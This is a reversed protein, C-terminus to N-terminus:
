LKEPRDEQHGASTRVVGRRRDHVVDVVLCELLELEAEGRRHRQDEHEDEDGYRKHLVAGQARVELVSTRGDRTTARPPRLMQAIRVSRGSYQISTVANLDWTPTWAIGGSQSGLGGVSSLKSASKPLAGAIRHSKLEDNTATAVVTPVTRKAVM